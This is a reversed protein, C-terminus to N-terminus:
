TNPRSRWEDRLLGFILFDYTKGNRVVHQRQRGEEVFGFKRPVAASRVNADACRIQVRNMGLNEFALELMKETARSIIGKGEEAADIWYGIETVRAAHDFEAFGITGIMRDDRFICMNLPQDDSSRNAARAVWEEADKRSYDPKAWEMFTRLHDYNRTVVDLVADADSERVQRMSVNDGLDITLEGLDM